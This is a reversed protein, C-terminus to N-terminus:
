HPIIVKNLFIYSVRPLSAFIEFSVINLFLLLMAVKKFHLFSYRTKKVQAYPKLTYIPFTYLHADQHAETPPSFGKKILESGKAMFLSEGEPAISV